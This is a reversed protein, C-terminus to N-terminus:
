IMNLTSFDLKEVNLDVIELLTTSILSNPSLDIINKKEEDDLVSFNEENYIQAGAITLIDEIFLINNLKTSLGNIAKAYLERDPIRCNGLQGGYFIFQNNNLLGICLEDNDNFKLNIPPFLSDEINIPLTTGPYRPKKIAGGFMKETILFQFPVNDYGTYNNTSVIYKNNKNRVYYVEAAGNTADTMDGSFLIDSGERYASNWGYSETLGTLHLDLDTREDKYNTWYIGLSFGDKEPCQIKTGWPVNGIFQKETIPAAYKIYSPILFKKDKLTNKFRRTLETYIISKGLNFYIPKIKTDCNVYTTGNRINYIEVENENDLAFFYNYLKILQRNTAKELVKVIDEYRNEILLNSFNQINVDNLPQHYKKALRRIKNIIPACNPYSKFALFLPKFRYFIKALEKLDAKKFSNEVISQKVSLSSMRKITNITKKDKIILTSGTTKYILYRLFDQGNKPVLNNIDYYVVKLEYSAIKEVEITSFPMIAIIDSILMKNPSKISELYNNIYNIAKELSVQRIVTFGYGNISKNSNDIEEYPIFPIAKYGLSEFGYTSLYHVMQEM